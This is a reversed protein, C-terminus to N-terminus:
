RAATSEQEIYSQCRMLYELARHHLGVDPYNTIIGEFRAAAAQYRRAKFYFEGVYLEHAAIHRFAEQLFPRAKLTHEDGPFERELRRLVETAQRAPTQDRDITPIKNFYCLGKQLLVYPIAENRPHLNEFEQYALIAEDYRQLHFYADAIKLEALIAYRSFPYWDRLKQFSEVSKSYRQHNYAALGESALEEATKEAPRRGGFLGCGSIFMVMALILSVTFLKSKCMDPNKLRQGGVM